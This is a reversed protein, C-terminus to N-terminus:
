VSTQKAGCVPGCLHSPRVLKPQAHCEGSVFQSGEVVSCRDAVHPPVIALVRLQATYRSQVQDLEARALQLQTQLGCTCGLRGFHQRYMGMGRVCVRLSFSFSFCFFVGARVDVFVCAQTREENGM